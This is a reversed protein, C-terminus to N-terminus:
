LIWYKKLFLRLENWKYVDRKDVCNIKVWYPRGNTNIYAYNVQCSLYIDSALMESFNEWRIEGYKPASM